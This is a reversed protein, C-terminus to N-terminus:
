NSDSPHSAFIDGTIEVFKRLVELGVNKEKKATQVKIEPMELNREKFNDHQMQEGTFSVVSWERTGQKM